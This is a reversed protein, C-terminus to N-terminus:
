TLTKEHSKFCVGLQSNSRGNPIDPAEEITVSVMVFHPMAFLVKDKLLQHTGCSINCVTSLISHM